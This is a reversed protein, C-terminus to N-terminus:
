DPTCSTGKSKYISIIVAAAPSVIIENPQKINAVTVTNTSYHTVAKSM